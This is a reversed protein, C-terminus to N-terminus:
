TFRRFDGHETAPLAASSRGRKREDRASGARPHGTRRSVSGRPQKVGDPELAGAQLPHSRVQRVFFPNAVVKATIAVRHKAADPRASAVSTLTVAAAVAVLVAHQANV